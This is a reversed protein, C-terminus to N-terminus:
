YHQAFDPKHASLAIRFWQFRVEGGAKQTISFARVVEPPAQLFWRRVATAQEGRCGAKELWDGLVIPEPESVEQLEELAFGAGAVFGRWEAPTYSRVHSGDRLVEVRNHWADVEPAGDPAATDAILLRGGPRLVRYAEAVFKPVSLFHHAALRCVVGDFSEPRFPLAEAAASTFILNRLGAGRARGRAEKLMAASVDLGTVLEVLPALAVATFGSGTAADLWRGSGDCQAHAILWALSESNWANWQGNYHPAQRDFQERSSRSPMEKDRNHVQSTRRATLVGRRAPSRLRM